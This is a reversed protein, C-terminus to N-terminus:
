EYGVIEQMEKAVNILRLWTNLAARLASLDDASVRLVLVKDDELRLDVCSRGIDDLEPKVADFLVESLSGGFRFTANYKM